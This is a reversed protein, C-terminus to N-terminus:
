SNAQANTKVPKASKRIATYRNAEPPQASSAPLRSSRGPAARRARRPPWPPSAPQGPRHVIIRRAPEVWDGHKTLCSYARMARLITSGTIPVTEVQEIISDLVRCLSARRLRTLGTAQAHRYLCVRHPLAYHRVIQHASRWDLFDADIAPRDKHHCISCKRAHRAPDPRSIERRRTGLVKVLKM